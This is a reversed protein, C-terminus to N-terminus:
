ASLLRRRGNLSVQRHLGVKDGAGYGAIYGGGHGGSAYHTRHSLGGFHSAIFDDVRAKNTHYLDALAPLLSDPNAAKMRGAAAEAHLAELREYIRAACGEAFSYRFRRREDGPIEAAAEKALREVTAILYSAM